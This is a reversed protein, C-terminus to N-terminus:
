DLEESAEVIERLVEAFSFSEVDIKATYFPRNYIDESNGRATIVVDASPAFEMSCYCDPDSGGCCTVGPDFVMEVKVTSLAINEVTVGNYSQTIRRAGWVQLAEEYSSM